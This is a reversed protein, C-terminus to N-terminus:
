SLLIRCLKRERKVPVTASISEPPHSASASGAQGFTAVNSSSGQQFTLPPASVHHYGPAPPPMHPQSLPAHNVQPLTPLGPMIGHSSAQQKTFQEVLQALQWSLGSNPSLSLMHDLIRQLLQVPIQMTPGSLLTAPDAAWHQSYHASQQPLVSSNTALLQQLLVALQPNLQSNSIPYSFQAPATTIHSPSLQVHAALSTSVTNQAAASDIAPTPRPTPLASKLTLGQSIEHAAYVSVCGDERDEPFVRYRGWNDRDLYAAERKLSAQIWKYDLIIRDKM